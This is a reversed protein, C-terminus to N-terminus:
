RYLAKTRGWTSIQFNANAPTAGCSDASACPVVGRPDLWGLPGCSTIWALSTSCVTFEGADPWGGYTADCFQPNSTVNGSTGISDVCSGGFHGFLNDFFLNCNIDPTSAADCFVAVAGNSRTVINKEFTHSAGVGFM